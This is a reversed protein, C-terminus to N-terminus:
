FLYFMKGMPPTKTWNKERMKAFDEGPVPIQGRSFTGPVKGPPHECKSNISANHPNHLEKPYNVDVEKLYSKSDDEVLRGIEDPTVWMTMMLGSVDEPQFRSFWLSVMCITQTWISYSAAKERPIVWTNINVKGSSPTHRTMLYSRKESTKCFMGTCCFTIEDSPLFGM